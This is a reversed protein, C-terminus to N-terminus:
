SKSSASIIIVRVTFYKLDCPLINGSAISAGTFFDFKFSLFEINGKLVTALNYVSMRGARCLGGHMKLEFQKPTM